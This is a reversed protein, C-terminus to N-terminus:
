LAKGPDTRQGIEFYPQAGRATRSARIAAAEDSMVGLSEYISRQRAVDYECPSEKDDSDAQPDIIRWLPRPM